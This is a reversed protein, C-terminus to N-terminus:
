VNNAVYLSKILRENLDRFIYEDLLKIMNKGSKRDYFGYLSRDVKKNLM